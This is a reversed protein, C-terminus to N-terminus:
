EKNRPIQEFFSLDINAAGNPKAVIKVLFTPNWMYYTIQFKAFIHIEHANPLCLTM